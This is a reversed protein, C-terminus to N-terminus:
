VFCYTLTLFELLVCTRIDHAGRTVTNINIFLFLLDFKSIETYRVHIDHAGRIVTNIIFKFLFHIPFYVFISKIWNKWEM